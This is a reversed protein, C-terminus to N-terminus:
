VQNSHHLTFSKYPDTIALGKLALLADTYFSIFNRLRDFRTFMVRSTADTSLRDINQDRVRDDSGKSHIM